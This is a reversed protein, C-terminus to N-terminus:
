LSIAVGAARIHEPTTGCCGGIIDVGAEIWTAVYRGYQEPCVADSSIWNGSPDAHGINGYALVPTSPLWRRLFRVQSEIAPAAMCNIGVAAANELKSAIDILKEGSLFIGPDGKQKFCFSVM